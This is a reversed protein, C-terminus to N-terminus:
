MIFIQFIWWFPKNLFNFLKKSLLFIPFNFDKKAKQTYSQKPYPTPITESFFYVNNFIQNIIPSSSISRIDQTARQFKRLRKSTEELIRAVSQHILTINQWKWLKILYKAMVRWTSRVPECTTLDAAERFLPNKCPAMVQALQVEHKKRYVIYITM